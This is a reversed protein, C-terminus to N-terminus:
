WWRGDSTSSLSPRPVKGKRFGPISAKAGVRHYAKKVAEEMEDSDVEINLVVRSREIRENTVKM